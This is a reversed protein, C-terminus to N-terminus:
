DVTIVLMTMDDYQDAEGQFARLATFVDECVQAPTRDTPSQFLTKLREQGFFDGATTQMDTLGDTYLLLRDGPALAIQEETLRFRDQDFIGLAVGRGGLNQTTGARALIPRDHGARCYTLQRTSREVVGYFVSVFMNPEGLELLLQNVTELVARPSRERRAETRLLSRTLAMYLAAPMGKDSVDAIAVGFYSDDLLIVDYFDGGVRRAPENGAAFRYGAIIPFTRPLVSQQVQRALELEREFREKKALEVQAAELQVIKARLQDILGARQIAVAAQHAFTQLLAVQGPEFRPKRTSHVIMFGVREGQALLPVYLGARLQTFQMEPANIPVGPPHQSFPSPGSTAALDIQLSQHVLSADWGSVALVEARDASHLYYLIAHDAGCLECAYHCVRAALDDLDASSILAQGIDGLSILAQTRQELVRHAAGIEVLKRELKANSDSLATESTVLMHYTRRFLDTEFLMADELSLHGELALRLVYEEMPLASLQGIIRPTNADARFVDFAMVDGHRGTGDCRDCGGSQRWPSMEEAQSLLPALHPYKQRLRDIQAPLPSCTTKCQPCLTAMRQVSLIWALGDLHDPTAGLESLHRIVDTGRFVTEIQSLVRVGARGAELAHPLTEDDLRDIVLLDPQRAAASAIQGAYSYPSEVALLKVQHKMQRPIRISSRDETVVIARAAPDAELIERMAIRFLTSRGSPLFGGPAAGTVPRPDLGAVVILGPNAAVLQEFMADIEPLHFFDALKLM